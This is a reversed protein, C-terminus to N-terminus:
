RQTEEDAGLAAYLEAEREAMGDRVDAVFGTVTGAIGGAISSPTFAEATRRLRRALLVGGTAGLGVGIATWFLTRV